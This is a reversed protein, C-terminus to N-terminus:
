ERGRKGPLGVWRPAGDPFIPLQSQLLGALLRPFPVLQDAFADIRPLLLGVASLPSCSRCAFVKPATASSVDLAVQLPLPLASAESRSIRRSSIDRQRSLGTLSMEFRSTTDITSSYRKVPARLPLRM